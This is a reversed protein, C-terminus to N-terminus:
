PTGSFLEDHRILREARLTQSEGVGAVDALWPRVQEDGGGRDPSRSVSV